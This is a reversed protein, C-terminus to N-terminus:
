CPLGRTARLDNLFRDVRMWLPEVPGGVANDKSDFSASARTAGVPTEAAEATSRGHAIPATLPMPNASM